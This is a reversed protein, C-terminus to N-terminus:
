SKPFQRRFIEAMGAKDLRRASIAIMEDYLVSDDSADECDNAMLFTVASAIATRKKGDLFAQSEALHFAHAAAIEFLDGHAYLWTNRAAALASELGGADRIGDLGGHEALSQRHLRLVQELSLFAPAAEESM